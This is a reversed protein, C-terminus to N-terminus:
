VDAVMVPEQSRFAEACPGLQHEEQVRELTAVAHSSATAYRLLDEADAVAIGAGAVGLVDTVDDTLRYLVETLDYSDTMAHAFRTLVATLRETAVM